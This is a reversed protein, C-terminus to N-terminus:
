IPVYRYTRIVVGYTTRIDCSDYGVQYGNFWQGYYLGRCSYGREYIYGMGRYNPGGYQFTNSPYYYYRPRQQLYCGFCASAINPLLFALFIGLIGTRRLKTM